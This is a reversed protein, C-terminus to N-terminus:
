VPAPTSTAAEKAIREISAASYGERDLVAIAAAVVDDRRARQTRTLTQTPDSDSRMTM